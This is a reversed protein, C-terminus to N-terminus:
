IECFTELASLVIMMKYYARHFDEEEGSTRSIEDGIMVIRRLLNTETGVNKMLDLYRNEKIWSNKRPVTRLHVPILPELGGDLQLGVRSIRPTVSIYM